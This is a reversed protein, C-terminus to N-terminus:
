APVPTPTRVTPKDNAYIQAIGAGLGIIVAIPM